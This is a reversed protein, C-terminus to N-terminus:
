AAKKHAEHQLPLTFKAGSETEIAVGHETVALSICQGNVEFTLHMTMQGEVKFSLAAPAHSDKKLPTVKEPHHYNTAPVSEVPSKHALQHMVPTASKEEAVPAESVESSPGEDTLERELNEIVSMIDALEQDNFGKEM